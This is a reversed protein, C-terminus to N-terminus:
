SPSVGKGEINLGASTRANDGNTARFDDGVRQPDLRDGLYEAM